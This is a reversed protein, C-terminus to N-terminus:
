VMDGIDLEDYEPIFFGDLEKSIDDESVDKGSPITTQSDGSDSGKFTVFLITVSIVVLLLVFVSLIKKNMNILDGNNKEKEMAMETEVM